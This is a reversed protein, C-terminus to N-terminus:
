TSTANQKERKKKLCRQKKVADSTTGVIAALQVNSLTDLMKLESNTWYHKPRYSEIGLENRYRMIKSKSYNTLKAIDTDHMTGLLTVDIDIPKKPRPM